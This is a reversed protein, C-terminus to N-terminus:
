SLLGNTCMWVDTRVSKCPMDFIYSKLWTRFDAQDPTQFYIINRVGYKERLTDPGFEWLRGTSAPVLASEGTLPFDYILRPSVGIHLFFDMQRRIIKRLFDVEHTAAHDKMESPGIYRWPMDLAPGGHYGVVGGDLVIKSAGAPFLYNACSSACITNVVVNLHKQVIVDAMDLADEVSGGRSKIIITQRDLIPLALFRRASDKNILGSVCITGPDGTLVAVQDFETQRDCSSASLQAIRVAPLDYHHPWMLPVCAFVPVAIM